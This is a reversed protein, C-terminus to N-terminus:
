HSVLGRFPLNLQLQGKPYLPVVQLSSTLSHVMPSASTNRDKEAIANNEEFSKKRNDGM